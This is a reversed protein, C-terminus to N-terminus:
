ADRDVAEQGYVVLGRGTAAVAAGVFAIVIRRWRRSHRKSIGNMTRIERKAGIM